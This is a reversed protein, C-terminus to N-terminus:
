NKLMAQIKTGTAGYPANKKVMYRYQRPLSEDLQLQSQCARVVLVAAEAGFGIAM